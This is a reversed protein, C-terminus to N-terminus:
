WLPLPLPLPFYAKTLGAGAERERERERAAASGGGAYELARMGGTIRVLVLAARTPILRRGKVARVTATAVSAM